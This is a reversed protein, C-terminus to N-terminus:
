AEKLAARTLKGVIGDVTLGKKSQFDKVAALTKSGFDGDVALGYGFHNLRYQIWKVGEGKSGKKLTKTPEKYPESIAVPTLFLSQEAARRRKLGELEKGGAKCYMPIKYAIQYKSRQRNNTLQNISGINFAFSVLADFENQNWAYTNNFSNVHAEFTKLDEKLLAEAEAQTISTGMKVGKTHGYGITPVGVADKYATLRCGEFSKILDIGNQSINM